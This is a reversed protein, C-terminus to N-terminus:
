KSEESVLAGTKIEYHVEWKKGDTGNIKVEWTQKGKKSDQYAKTVEGPHAKLAMEVAQEKTIERAPAAAAPTAPAAAAAAPKSDYALTSGSFAAALILLAASCYAAPKNM